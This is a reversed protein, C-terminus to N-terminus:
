LNRLSTNAVRIRQKMFDWVKLQLAQQSAAILDRYQTNQFGWLTSCVEERHGVLFPLTVVVRINNQRELYKDITNTQDDRHDPDWSALIQLAKKSYINCVTSTMKDITVFRVGKYDELHLIRADPHLVAVLGAFVDWQDSRRDLYDHVINMKVEFDDPHIVDDEMITLRQVNSKLANRALASYSLGCGVWGPSLRIGDFITCGVPKSKEFALRRAITEPMALAIRDSNASIPLPMHQVHSAPLFGQAVLFRDFMFVFRKAGLQTSKGFDTNSPPNSLAKRVTEIMDKEDGEKFFTVCGDLEPYDGQDKTVESVVPVGLSLCEQIRPMELLANEYYHLNIVLRAGLIAEAIDTGFVESCVKVDFHQRLINLMALRRPSSKDDGYFLVDCTKEPSEFAFKYEPDAGVPLYYVHPYAVNKDAMFEVNVLSYELVARSNELTRLYDDTFWRSSVSQEMQYVIRKEGLPLVKFMQPCIVVYMDHPFDVPVDTMIDVSWGHERLRKAVLHAMFLTHPTTMVGWRLNPQVKIIHDIRIDITDVSQHLNSDVESYTSYNHKVQEVESRDKNEILEKIQLLSWSVEAYMKEVRQKIQADQAFLKNEIARLNQEVNVGDRIGALRLVSGILPLKIWKHRRIVADLGAIEVRYSKAEISEHLQALIEIKSIGYRLRTLYYRLGEADPARGLVNHYASYIFDEDYHSLLEDLTAVATNPQNSMDILGTIRTTNSETLPKRSFQENICTNKTESQYSSKKVPPEDKSLNIDASTLSPASSADEFSNKKNLSRVLQRLPATWRWSNSAQLSHLQHRLQNVTQTQLQEEALWNRTLQYLEDRKALLQTNFEQEREALQRSLDSKQQEHAHLIEQLQESFEREREASALLQTDLQHRVLAFQALLVQESEAYQQHLARERESHKHAQEALQQSTQKKIALLQTNFEQEREAHQRSLDSKQQEHAHLIEQLQESFEREREASALLQTDLQHRVLAFQALLVQESEAYQQHLARERESHKHAQEALEQSTQQQIALLQTNFEQERESNAKEQERLQQLQTEILRQVEKRQTDFEQLHALVGERMFNALDVSPMRGELIGSHIYHQYPDVAAPGIYPYTKVYWEADFAKQFINQNQKLVSKIIGTMESNLHHIQVTMQDALRLSSKLREFENVWVTTNAHFASQNTQTNDRVADLLAAYLEQVLPPCSQDLVLDNANYITHRLKQELFNSQYRQLAQTDIPLDLQKALMELTTQPADLLSDYNVLVRRYAETHAVSTLVHGLWLLYSKEHSFGDRKALSKAVSLPNRIALVYSIDFGCHTFIPQWFPLLKAIRPDKFGFIPINKTKQRLLDVARLFYGQQHLNEVDRPEIPALCHWDSGIAQFIEINLALIDIDEFFGKDNVGEIPPLLRDGLDVGLVNLGKTMVSSGSRHMGLVIILRKRQESM